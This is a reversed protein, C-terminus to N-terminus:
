FVAGLVSMMVIVKRGISGKMKTGEYEIDHEIVQNM